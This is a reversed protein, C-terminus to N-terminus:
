ISRKKLGEQLEMNLAKRRHERSLLYEVLPRQPGSEERVTLGVPWESATDKTVRSQIVGLNVTVSTPVQTFIIENYRLIRGTPSKRTRSVGM